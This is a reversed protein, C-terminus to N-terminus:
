TTVRKVILRFTPLSCESAPAILFFPNEYLFAPFSFCCVRKGSASATSDSPVNEEDADADTAALVKIFVFNIM